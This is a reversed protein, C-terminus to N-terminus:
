ALSAWFKEDDDETDNGSYDYIPDMDQKQDQNGDHLGYALAGKGVASGIGAWQGATRDANKNLADATKGYQGSLGAAKQAKNDFEQQILRKNYMQEDNATKTNADAVRQKLNLNYEQGANNRDTNRQQVSQMNRSNFASIADRASALDSQQKYDDGSIDGALKGGAMIADLARKRANALTNLQMESARNTSDQAGKLQAVFEMGSGNGQRAFSDKISERKGRDMANIDNTAKEVDAQDQLTLGGDGIEELSSLARLRSQKLRPDLQIKEYSSPDQKIATELAPHIEGTQVFRDLVVRQTAPDPVHIQLWEKLADKNAALAAARDGSSAANGILGGVANAALMGILPFM